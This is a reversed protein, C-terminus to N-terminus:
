LANHKGNVLVYDMFDIVASVDSSCNSPMGLRVPEWYQWFDEIAEVVASSALYAWFTGPAVHEVWAALAGPYSGGILVWPVADANTKAWQTAWPLEVNNAFNTMDLISNELTLYQLNETTLDDFPSSSGWYRHEILIQAAGLEQALM